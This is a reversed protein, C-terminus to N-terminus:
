YKEQSWEGQLEVMSNTKCTTLHPCIPMDFSIPM